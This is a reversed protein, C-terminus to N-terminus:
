PECDNVWARIYIDTTGEVDAIEVDETKWVILRAEFESPPRPKIDWLVFERTNCSKPYIEVWM